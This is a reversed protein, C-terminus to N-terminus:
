AAAPVRPGDLVERVRRVFDDRTFPKQVFALGRDLIERVVAADEPYGSTFLVAVETGVLAQVECALETGDLGPLVIDTVLLDIRGERENCIRLAQEADGAALVDYGQRELFQRMVVRVVEEDEVLLIRESGQAQGADAAPAGTGAAQIRPLYLVVP